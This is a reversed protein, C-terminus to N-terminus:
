LISNIKNMLGIIGDWVDQLGITAMLKENFYNLSFVIKLSLNKQGAKKLLPEKNLRYTEKVLRKVRNRWVAKGAKKSVAVAIKIGPTDADNELFYIAKFKRDGSFFVKGASFVLKFDREQKLRQSSPLDFKKL